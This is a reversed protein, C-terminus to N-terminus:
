LPPTPPKGDGTIVQDGDPYAPVPLDDWTKGGDASAKLKAGFHHDIDWAAPTARMIFLGVDLQQKDRLPEGDIFVVIHHRPSDREDLVYSRLTPFDHFVNDFWERLTAGTVAITWVQYTGFPEAARWRALAPAFTLNPM